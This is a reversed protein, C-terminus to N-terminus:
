MRKRYNEVRARELAEVERRTMTRTQKDVPKGNLAYRVVGTQKPRRPANMIGVVVGALSSVCDDHCGSRAQPKGDAGIEFSFCENITVADLLEISHEAIAGELWGYLKPRTVTTEIFGINETPERSDSKEDRAHYVSSPPLGLDIAKDLSSRGYGGTLLPVVYARNYWAHLRYLYEGFHRESVRGRFRAVQEGSDLDFVQHVGWDPDTKGKGKNRDRGSAADSGIVYQHHKEPEIWVALLGERKKHAYRKEGFENEIEILEGIAPRIPDYRKLAERDFFKRGGPAIQWDGYTLQEHTVEDLKDLMRRYDAQDIFPNDTYRSPVFYTTFTKGKDDIGDKRFYRMEDADKTTFDDPIFRSKVWEHGDGGPNTASRMRSPIHSGEDHRMRSFLYLYQTETFQTLEDFGVFHFNTSQYIYKDNEDDMHGFQIVADSPFRWQKLGANWRAATPRLWEGLRDMLAGPKTLDPYTRRLLLATYGPYDVYQLAAQLLADSKMGGAAGGYLAEDVEM